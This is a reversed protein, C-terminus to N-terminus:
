RNFLKKIFNICKHLINEKYEIISNNELHPENIIRSRKTEFINNYNKGVAQSYLKTKEKNVLREYEQKQETNWWWNLCIFGLIGNTEPKINMQNIPKSYDLNVTYNSAAIEKLYNIFNIPILNVKDIDTHKLIDLVEVAAECYNKNM